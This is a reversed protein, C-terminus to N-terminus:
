GLKGVTFSYLRQMEAVAALDLRKDHPNRYEFVSQGAGMARKFAKREGIRIGSVLGRAKRIADEALAADPGDHPCRNLFTFGLKREYDVMDLTLGLARLDASSPQVPILVLDAIRVAKAADRDGAGKTDIIAVEFGAEALEELREDLSVATVSLAAPARLGNRKRIKGWEYASGQTDMDLIATVRGADVFASALNTTLTSKGVGGKQCAITVIKM